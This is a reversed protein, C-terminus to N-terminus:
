GVNARRANGQKSSGAYLAEKSMERMERFPVTAIDLVCAMAVVGQSPWIKFGLTM